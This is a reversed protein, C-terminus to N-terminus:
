EGKPPRKGFLGGTMESFSRGWKRMAGRGGTSLFAFVGLGAVLAVVLWIAWSWGANDESAPQAPTEDRASSRSSVDSAGASGTSNGSSRYISFPGGPRM